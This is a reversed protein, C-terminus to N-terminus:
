RKFVVGFAVTYHTPTLNLGNLLRTGNASNYSSSLFLSYQHSLEFSTRLGLNFTNYDFETKKYSIAIQDFGTYPTLTIRRGNENFIFNYELNIQAENLDIHKNNWFNDYTGFEFFLNKYLRLGIFLGRGYNVSGSVGYLESNITIPFKNLEYFFKVNEGKSIYLIIKQGFSVKPKQNPPNTIANNKRITDILLTPVPEIKGEIEAKTFLSDIAGIEEKNAPKDILYVDDMMQVIDKYLLPHVNITDIQTRIFDIKRQPKENKYESLGSYHTQVLYWKQGIQEYDVTYNGKVIKIFGPRVSNYFTVNAAV